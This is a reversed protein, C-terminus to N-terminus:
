AARAHAASALAGMAEFREAVDGGIEARGAGGTLLACDLQLRAATYREGHEALAAVAAGARAWTASPDGPALRVATPDAEV